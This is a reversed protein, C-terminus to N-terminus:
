LYSWSDRQSHRTLSALAWDRSVDCWGISSTRHLRRKLRRCRTHFADAEMEEVGCKGCRRPELREISPGTAEATPTSRCSLRCQM